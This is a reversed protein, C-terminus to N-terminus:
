ITEKWFTPSYIELFEGHKNTEVMEYQILIINYVFIHYYFIGLGKLGSNVMTM